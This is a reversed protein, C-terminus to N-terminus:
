SYVSAPSCAPKAKPPASARDLQKLWRGTEGCALERLRTGLTHATAM